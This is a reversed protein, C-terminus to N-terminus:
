VMSLESHSVTFTASTMGQYVPVGKDDLVLRAGPFITTTYYPVEMVASIRRFNSCIGRITLNYAILTNFLCILKGSVLISICSETINKYTSNYSCVKTTKWIQQM